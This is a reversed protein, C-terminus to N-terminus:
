AAGFAGAYDDFFWETVVQGGSLRQVLNKAAGVVLLVDEADVMEEALARDVINEDEAESVGKHLREPIAIVHLANLDGHGFIEADLAAAGEVVLRARNTVNDLIM